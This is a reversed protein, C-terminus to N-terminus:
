RNPIKTPDLVRRDSASTSPKVWGLSQMKEWAAKAEPQQLGSAHLYLGQKQLWKAAKQYMALAIHQRQFGDYVRIYDVLPKDVHYKKFKEFETAHHKNLRPSDIMSLYHDLTKTDMNKIDDQNSWGLDWYKAPPRHRSLVAYLLLKKKVDDPMDRWNTRAFENPIYQKLLYNVLSPYKTDFREKPIYSIKLYGAEEGNVKAVLKHIIWENNIKRDAESDQHLEFEIENGSKTEYELIESVRM